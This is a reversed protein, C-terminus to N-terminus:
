IADSPNQPRLQFRTKFSSLVKIPSLYLVNRLLFKWATRSVGFGAKTQAMANVIAQAYVDKRLHPSSYFWECVNNTHIEYTSKRGSSTSTMASSNSNFRYGVLMDNIYAGYGSGICRMAIQWEMFPTKVANLDLAARRYMFSSHVCIPGWGALQQQTFLVIQDGPPLLGTHLILSEDDSFYRARHFVINVTRDQEMVTLQRSLKTPLMVDDGDIHAVYKGRAMRHARLYNLNAGLNRPSGSYRILDPRLRSYTEAIDSTGDTSCDDAILIETGDPPLNALISEICQTIYQRQNYTSVVITLLM